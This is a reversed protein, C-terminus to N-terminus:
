SRRSSSTRVLFGGATGSTSLTLSRQMTKVRQVAEREEPTWLHAGSLPDDMLKSFARFYDRDSAATVYRALGDDASDDDRIEREMHARCSGPLFSSRENARLAASRLQNVPATDREADHRRGGSLDCGAETSVQGRNSPKPWRRAYEAKLDAIAVDRRAVGADLNHLRERLGDSAGEDRIRARLEAAERELRQHDQRATDLADRVEILPRPM